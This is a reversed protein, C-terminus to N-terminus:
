WGPRRSARPWSATSRRSASAWCCCSPGPPPPWIPWGEPGPRWSLSGPRATCNRATSKRWRTGRTSWPSPRTWTSSRSTATWAASSGPSGARTSRSTASRRPRSPWRGTSSPCPRSAPWNSESPRSNCGAPSARRCSPRKGKRASRCRCEASPANRCTATPSTPRVSSRRTWRATSSTGRSLSSPFRRKAPQTWKEWYNMVTDWKGIFLGVGALIAIFRVRKLIVLGVLRLKQRGTMPEDPPAGPGGTEGQPGGSTEIQDSGAVVAARADKAAM